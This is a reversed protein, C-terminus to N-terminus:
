NAAVVTSPTSAKEPESANSDARLTARRQRGPVLGVGRCGVNCEPLLSDFEEGRGFGICQDDVRQQLLPVENGGHRQQHLPQALRVPKRKLLAFVREVQQGTAPQPFDAAQCRVVRRGPELSPLRQHAFEEVIQFGVRFVIALHGFQFQIQGAPGGLVFRFRVLRGLHVFVRLLEEARGIVLHDIDVTGGVADFAVHELGFGATALRFVFQLEFRASQAIAQRQDARDTVQPARGRQFATRPPCDKGVGFRRQGVVHEATPEILGIRIVGPQEFQKRRDILLGDPRGRGAAVRQDFVVPSPADLFCQEIRGDGGGDLGGIGPLHQAVQLPGAPSRRVALRDVRQRAGHQGAARSFGPAAPIRKQGFDFLLRQQIHREAPPAIRSFDHSGATQLLREAVQDAAQRPQAQQALGALNQFGRPDHLVIAAKRGARDAFEVPQELGPVLRQDLADDAHRAIPRHGRGLALAAVVKGVRGQDVRELFQRFRQELLPQRM